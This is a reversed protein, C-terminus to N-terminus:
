NDSFDPADGTVEWVLYCRCGPHPDGHGPGNPYFDGWVDQTTGNVAQCLDCAKNDEIHWTATVTVGFEMELRRAQNIEGGSIAGTTENVGISEARTESFVGAIGAAITAEAAAEEAAAAAEEVIEQVQTQIREALDGALEQARQSAWRAADATAAVPDRFFGVDDAMQEGAELHTQALPAEVTAAVDRRLETYFSAPLDRAGAHALLWGSAEDQYQMFLILLLAAIEKEHDTRTSLDPM